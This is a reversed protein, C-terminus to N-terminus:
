KDDSLIKNSKKINEEAWLPQLNTYHNLEVVREVTDASSLPIIHDIQWEGYNEWSMGDKFQDQLHKRVFDREAGLARYVATNKSYGQVMIARCINAWLFRRERYVPDSFIRRNEYRRNYIRRRKKVEPRRNYQRNYEAVSESNEKKYRRSKAKKKERYKRYNKKCYEREKPNNRKKELHCQKCVSKVGFRGKKEKHFETIQKETQCHTCTKTEM